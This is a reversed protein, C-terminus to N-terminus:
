LDFAQRLLVMYGIDGTKLWGNPDITEATKKPEDWYGKMINYGRFCLEGEQDHPVTRGEKDIVKCEVFPFVKGISEYGHKESISTYFSRTVTAGASHVSSVPSQPAM